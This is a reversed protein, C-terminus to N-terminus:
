SSNSCPKSTFLTTIRADVMFDSYLPVPYLLDEQGRSMVGIRVRTVLWSNSLTDTTRYIEVKPGSAPLSGSLPLPFLSCPCWRCLTYTGGWGFDALVLLLGIPRAQKAKSGHEPLCFTCWMGLSGIGAKLFPESGKRGAHPLLSLLHVFIVM